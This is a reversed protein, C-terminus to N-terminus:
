VKDSIKPKVIKVFVRNDTVKNTDLNGYLDKKGKRLLSAVYNREKNYAKRTKIKYYFSLLLLKGREITKNVGM